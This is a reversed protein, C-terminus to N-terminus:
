ISATNSFDEQAQLILEHDEWEDRYSEPRITRNKSAAKYMEKRWEEIVPFGCQDAIWDNYDWQVPGINHAYRKPIGFAELSSYFAKVDEVMEEKSPLAIRNSLIGAIWKSQHECLPFPVVKWPLGVFSLWPALEPPFVHKYLPGVCNDEVTITGDTQLFPFNYKYGTCHLIVDACVANGGRFVVRGDELASDIMSHLWMNDHGPLKGLKNDEVSRAAIHVEKAVTAIDRSIDVASAANGILVVVQDRFPDPTRYNHGHMQKGPWATIGPIDAIHPQTYHGNCVVVADYIEDVTVGGKTISRVRWKGSEALGAFVVESEFRVLEAIEFASTFDQLYMLVEKHGPFRRSDRGKVERRVFPYDRFGMVERPLNTRLSQYLSSHVVARNPDIGIPDSEVESTYVWTGGVQDGREFVVVRHGERRLERAAVLGAAGAGIVAVRRSRLPPITTAMVQRQITAFVTSRSCAVPM